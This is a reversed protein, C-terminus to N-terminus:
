NFGDSQIKGGGVLHMETKARVELFSGLSAGKILTTLSEVSELTWMSEEKNQTLVCADPSVLHDSEPATWKTKNFCPRQKARPKGLLSPQSAPACQLDM